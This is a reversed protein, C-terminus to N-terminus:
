GHLAVERHADILSAIGTPSILLEPQRILTTRRGGRGVHIELPIEGVRVSLRLTGDDTSITRRVIKYGPTGQVAREEALQSPTKDWHPRNRKRSTERETKCAAEAM